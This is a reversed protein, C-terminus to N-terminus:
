VIGQQAANGAGRAWRDISAPIPEEELAYSHRDVQAGAEATSVDHVVSTIHLIERIQQLSREAAIEVDITDLWRRDIERELQSWVHQLSWHVIDQAAIDAALVDAAALM